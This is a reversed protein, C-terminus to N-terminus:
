WLPFLHPRAYSWAYVTLFLAFVTVPSRDGQSRLLCRPSSSFHFLLVFCIHGRHVHSFHNYVVTNYSSITFISVSQHAYRHPYQYCINMLTEPRLAGGEVVINSVPRLYM